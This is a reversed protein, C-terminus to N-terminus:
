LRLRLLPDEERCLRHGHGELGGVQGNLGATAAQLDPRHRCGGSSVGGTVATVSVELSMMKAPTTVSSRRYARLDRDRGPSNSSSSSTTIGFAGEPCAVLGMTERPIGDAVLLVM